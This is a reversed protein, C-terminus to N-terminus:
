TWSRAPLGTKPTVGIVSLRKLVPVVVTHVAVTVTVLGTPPVPLGAVAEVASVPLVTLNVILSALASVQSAVAEDPVSVLAVAGMENVPKPVAVFRVNAAAGFGIGIPPAPPPPAVDVIVIQTRSAPPLLTVVAVSEIPRTRVAVVTVAGFVAVVSMVAEGVLAALPQAVKVTWAVVNTPVSVYVAFSLV